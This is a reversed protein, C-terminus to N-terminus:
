LARTMWVTEGDDVAAAFGLHRYFGIAHANDRGVGLHVGPVRRAQLRSVLGEILLRGLGTGRTRELLDIHLHAPFGALLSPPSLPPRHLLGVLGADVPHEASGRPYQDRLTPWWAVEAWAQFAETDATGLVYGAVGRADAAVACLEADAAVYPGAFIHGLLDPNRGDALNEDPYGAILCVRYIGPLDASTAPRLPPAPM